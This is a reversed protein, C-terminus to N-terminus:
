ELSTSSFTGLVGATLGEFSTSGLTGLVGATLGELSTSGVTGFVGAGVGELSMLLFAPFVCGLPGPGFGLFSRSLSTLVSFVTRAPWSTPLTRPTMSLVLYSRSCTVTGWTLM